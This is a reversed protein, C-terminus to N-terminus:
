AFLPGASLCSPLRPELARWACWRATRWNCVAKAIGAAVDVIAVKCGRQALGRAIALGIGSAGGTVIARTDSYDM